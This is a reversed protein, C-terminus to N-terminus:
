RPGVYDVEIGAGIVLITVSYKPTGLIRMMLIPRTVTWTSVWKVTLPFSTQTWEMVNSCPPLDQSDVGVSESGDSGVPRSEATWWWPPIAQPDHEETEPNRLYEAPIQPPQGAVVWQDLHDQWWPPMTKGKGKERAPMALSM